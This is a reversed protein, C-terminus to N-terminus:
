QTPPPPAEGAGGPPRRHGPKPMAEFKKQQDPTLVALIDKRGQEEIARAKQRREKRSLADDDRLAKLQAGQNQFIAALKAQQDASLGLVETLHKLRSAEHAAQDKPSPPPPPPAEQASAHPLTSVILGLTLLALASLRFWRPQFSHM